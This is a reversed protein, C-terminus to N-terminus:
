GTAMTDWGDKSAAMLDASQTAPRRHGSAQTGLDFAAIVRALSQAEVQLIKSAATSQEFMAANQQTAQELENTATNIASIASSQERASTSIEGMRESIGQVGESISRIATGAQGVLRVGSEVHKGSLDIFGSIEKAAEASRAALERVEAAVVAFGKGADGARAAEVGANLALLNTQFAIDDILNIIKRIASSSKQLQRMAEGADNVIGTSALSEAQIKTVAANAEMVNNATQSVSTTLAEIATATEELTATNMETRNALDYSATVIESTSGGITGSSEDIRSVMATLSESTANAAIRIEDFVGEFNDEMRHSLVGESLAALATKIEQLGRNTIESIQNVGHCLEAFIGDKDGTHLRKSFDGKACAAIVTSIEAAAHQEQARLEQDQRRHEAAETQALDLSRRAAMDARDRERQERQENELQKSEIIHHRFVQFAESIRIIESYHSQPPAIDTNGAALQQSATSTQQLPTSIRRALTLIRIVFLATTVLVTLLSTLLIIRGIRTNRLHAEEMLASVGSKIREFTPEALALSGSVAARLDREEYTAAAFADFGTKYTDLQLLVTDRLEASAFYAAPLARFESLRAALQESYGPDARLMFDKEYQRMMLLKIQLEPRNLPL